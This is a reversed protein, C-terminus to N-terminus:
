FSWLVSAWIGDSSAGDFEYREWEGRLALHSTLVVELGAGLLLDAGDDSEQHPGVLTVFVGDEQWFLVGAKLFPAWRGFSLRGLVTASLGDVETSFGLDAFGECCRQRGFDYWSAELAWNEGLALGVFIKSLDGSSTSYAELGDRFSGGEVGDGIGGGLYLQAADLNAPMVLLAFTMLMRLAMRTLM